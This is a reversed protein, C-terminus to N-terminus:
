GPLWVEITGISPSPSYSTFDAVESNFGLSRILESVRAAAPENNDHFYRVNAQSVEIGVRRMETKEVGQSQLANALQRALGEGEAGRYHLVIRAAALEPLSMAVPAASQPMSSEAEAGVPDASQATTTVLEDERLTAPEAPKPVPVAPVGEEPWSPQPMTGIPESRARALRIAQADERAVAQRIMEAATMTKILEGSAKARIDPM